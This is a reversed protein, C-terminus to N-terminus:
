EFIGINLPKFNIPKGAFDKELIEGEPFAVARNICPSNSQLRLSKVVDFGCKIKGDETFIKDLNEIMPNSYIASSDAPPLVHTGFYVNNEFKMDVGFFGDMIDYTGNELNNGYGFSYKAIGDTYFINNAVWAGTPLDGWQTLLFIPHNQSKTLYIFNNYIKVKTSPGAFHFTREGDNISVNYRVIVNDLGYYDPSLKQTPTCILLFGGENDHSYNYQFTTNNSNFDADFSMGDKFGHMGYVENYQFLTNDSGWSWFGAAYDLARTRGGNLENHEVLTGYTGIVVIGDGGIDELYNNRIIVNISPYWDERKLYDSGGRIGDRDCRLLRCNEIILGNFRTKVTSGGNMWKIGGTDGHKNYGNVDHIYLGNLIIHEAEGYDKAEIYVGRRLFSRTEGQNTLELNNVEIFANNYLHLAQDSLGRANIVPMNGSGYKDIVIPKGKIGSGMPKLMGDFICGAALLLKDGAKLRISNAKGLTKWAKGSSLGNNEDNGTKSNLYYSEQCFVGHFNYLSLLFIILFRTKRLKM